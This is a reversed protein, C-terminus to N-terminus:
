RCIHSSVERCNSSKSESSSTGFIVSFGSSCSRTLQHEGDVLSSRHLDTLISHRLRTESVADAIKDRSYCPIAIKVTFNHAMERKSPSVPISLVDMMREACVRVITIM